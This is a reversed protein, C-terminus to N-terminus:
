VAITMKVTIQANKYCKKSHFHCHGLFTDFNDSTDAMIACDHFFDTIAAM